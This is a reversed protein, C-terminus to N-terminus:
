VRETQWVVFGAGKLLQSIPLTYMSSNTFSTRLPSAHSGLWGSSVRIVPNVYGSYVKGPTLAEHRQALLESVTMFSVGKASLLEVAQIAADVSTGHIDHLLIIDGDRLRVGSEDIFHSMIAEVNRSQWDRTDVSWMIIPYGFEAAIRRVAANRTGYPPRFIAPTTGTAQLISDRTQSLEDRVRNESENPLNLHWYGHSAIEHGEAVIRAAWEPNVTVAHGLVFFTASVNQDALADLLRNTHICPGDDFTLAVQRGVVSPNTYIWRPGVFTEVQVWHGDQELVAVVQQEIIQGWGRGPEEFLFSPREVYRKNELLYVWRNGYATSIQAWGDDRTQIVQVTQPAYLEQKAARFDPELYTIFQWPIDVMRETNDDSAHIIEIGVNLFVLLIVFFLIELRASKRL